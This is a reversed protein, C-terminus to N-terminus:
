ISYGEMAARWEVAPVSIWRDDTLWEPLYGILDHKFARLGTFFRCKPAFGNVGAALRSTILWWGLRM